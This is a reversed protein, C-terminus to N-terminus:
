KKVEALTLCFHKKVADTPSSVGGSTTYTLSVKSGNTGSEEVIINLPVTKGEGYSVSQSASIIGLEKDSKIIQWGDKATYLYVKKYAKSPKINDFLAWTKYTTGSFFGGEKSFNSTCQDAIAQLPISLICITAVIINHKIMIIRKINLIKFKLKM